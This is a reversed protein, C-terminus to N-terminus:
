PIRANHLDEYFHCVAWLEDLTSCNKIINAKYSVVVVNGPVYGKSNDIRDVSPSDLSTKTNTYCIVTGLAPCREPLPEIDSVCISHERGLRKASALTSRILRQAPHLHRWEQGKLRFYDKHASHYAATYAAHELKKEPSLSKRYRRVAERRAVKQEETYGKKRSRQYTARFKDSARYRLQCAKFKDSAVYAARVARGKASQQYERRAAKQEETLNRTM